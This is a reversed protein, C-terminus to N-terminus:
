GDGWYDQMVFMVFVPPMSLLSQNGGHTLTPRAQAPSFQEPSVWAEPSWGATRPSKDPGQAETHQPCSAQSLRSHGWGPHTPLVLETECTEDELLGILAPERTWLLPWTLTSIRPQSRLGRSGDCRSVAGQTFHWTRIQALTPLLPTLSLTPDNNGGAM